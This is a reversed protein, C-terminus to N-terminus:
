RHQSHQLWRLVAVRAALLGHAVRVAYPDHHHASQARGVDRVHLAGLARVAHHSHRVLPQIATSHLRPKLKTPLSLPHSHPLRPLLRAVALGCLDDAGRRVRRADDHGHYDRHFGPRVCRLDDHVLMPHPCHRLLLPVLLGLRWSSRRVLWRELLALTHASARVQALEQRLPLAQM